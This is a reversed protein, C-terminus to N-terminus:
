KFEELYKLTKENTLAQYLYEKARREDADPMMAKLRVLEVDVEEESPAISEKKAIENLVLQTLVRREADKRWEVRLDAETKQAHTLYDEWTGGFRGIDAKMQGVMRNLEDEILVDSIDAKSDVLLKEIISTRRKESAKQKKELVLNDRVKSKLTDLTKFEEGFSQAFVDDLAPLEVTAEEHSHDHSHDHGEHDHDHSHDHNHSHGSKGKQLEKLVDDVDADTVVVEEGVGEAKAIHKYDALTVEPLTFITVSVEFPNGKALKTITIRPEVIPFLKHETLAQVYVDSLCINAMEELIIMEGYNKVILDEPASGKRFGDIQVMEQIKKLGKAHYKEFEEVPVSINIKIEGKELREITSKM